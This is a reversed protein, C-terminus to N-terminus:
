KKKLQREEALSRESGTHEAEPILPFTGDVTQSIKEIVAEEEERM